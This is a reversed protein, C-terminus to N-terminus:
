PAQMLDGYSLSSEPSTYSPLLALVPLVAAMANFPNRWMDLAFMARWYTLQSEAWDGLMRQVARAEHAGGEYFAICESSERVRVLAYRINAAVQKTRLMIMRMHEGFLVWFVGTGVASYAFALMLLSPSISSLVASFAVITLGRKLLEVLAALSLEVFIQVDETLRQDPNDCSPSVFSIQYFARAEFFRTCFTPM